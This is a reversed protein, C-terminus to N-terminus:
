RLRRMDPFSQVLQKLEDAVTWENSVITEAIVKKQQVRNGCCYPYVWGGCDPKVRQIQSMDGKGSSSFPYDSVGVVCYGWRTSAQIVKRLEKEFLFGTLMVMSKVVGAKGVLNHHLHEASEILVFRDEIELSPYESHSTMRPRLEKSGM